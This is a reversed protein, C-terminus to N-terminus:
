KFHFYDITALKTGFYDIADAAYKLSYVSGEFEDRLFGTLDRKQTTFEVYSARRKCFDSLAEASDGIDNRIQRNTNNLESPTARGKDSLRVIRSVMRNHENSWKQLDYDSHEESVPGFPDEYWGNVVSLVADVLAETERYVKGYEGNYKKWNVRAWRLNNLRYCFRRVKNEFQTGEKMKSPTSYRVYSAIGIVEKDLNLVPSGSNGSVFEASVEVLDSGVGTVKGYLETAVGGGESNGFVALPAGMSLNDSVALGDRDELLLRAIDRTASLEVAQPRLVEGMVTKFTITDAGLIIHQNTFIYAKEDMAAIFGSGSWSGHKGRCEIIVLKDRVDDFTYSFQGKVEAEEAERKERAERKEQEAQEDETEDAWVSHGPMGTILLLLCLSFKFTTKLLSDRHM